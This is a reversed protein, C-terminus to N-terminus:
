ARIASLLILYEVISEDDGKYRCKCHVKILTADDEHGVVEYDLEEKFAEYAANKVKVIVNAHM